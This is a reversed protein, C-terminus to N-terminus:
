LEGVPQRKAMLAKMTEATAYQINVITKDSLPLYETDIIEYLRHVEDHGHLDGPQLDKNGTQDGKYTLQGFEVDM